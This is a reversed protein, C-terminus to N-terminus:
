SMTRTGRAGRTEDLWAEFVLVAWLAYELGPRGAQHADWSARVAAPDLFGEERLRSLALHDDAWERLPGRLWEGLPPDFGSKPRDVLQRPVHREVLLRL